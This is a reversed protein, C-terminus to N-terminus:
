RQSNGARFPHIQSQTTALQGGVDVPLMQHCGLHLRQTPKFNCATLCLSCVIVITRSELDLEVPHHHHVLMHNRLAHFSPSGGVFNISTLSSPDLGVLLRRSAVSASPLVRAKMSTMRPHQRRGTGFKLCRVGSNQMFRSASPYMM